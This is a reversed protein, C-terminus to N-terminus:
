RKKVRMYERQQCLKDGDRERLISEEFIKKLLLNTTLSRNPNEGNRIKKL